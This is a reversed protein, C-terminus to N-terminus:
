KTNKKQGGLRREKEVLYQEVRSAVERIYEPGPNVGSVLKTLMEKNVPGITKVISFTEPASGFGESFDVQIDFAQGLAQSVFGVTVLNGSVSFPYFNHRVHNLSKFFSHAPTVYASISKLLSSLSYTNPCQSRLASEPFKRTVSFHAADFVQDVPDTDQSTQDRHLSTLYLKSVAWHGVPRGLSKRSKKPKLKEGLHLVLVLSNELWSYVATNSQTCHSVLRWRAPDKQDPSVQRSVLDAFITLEDQSFFSPGAVHEIVIKDSQPKTLINTSPNEHFVPDVVEKTPGKKNDEFTDKVEGDEVTNGVNASHVAPEIVLQIELKKVEESEVKPDTKNLNVFDLDREQNDTDMRIENGSAVPDVKVNRPGDEEDKLSVSPKNSTQLTEISSMSVSKSPSLDCAQPNTAKSMLEYTFSLLKVEEEAGVIEEGIDVNNAAPTNTAAAAIEDKEVAIPEVFSAVLSQALQIQGAPSKAPSINDSINALFSPEGEEHIMKEDSYVLSSESM